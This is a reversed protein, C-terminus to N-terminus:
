SAPLLHSIGALTATVQRGGPIVDFNEGYLEIM